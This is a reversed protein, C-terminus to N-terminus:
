SRQKDIFLRIEDHLDSGYQICGNAQSLLSIAKDVLEAKATLRAHANCAQVIFAANACAINYNGDPQLCRALYGPYSDKIILTKARKWPLKSHKM